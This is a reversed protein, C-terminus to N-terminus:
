PIDYVAVTTKTTFPTFFYGFWTVVSRTRLSKTVSYVGGGGAVSNVTITVEDAVLGVLAISSVRQGPTLVVTLPSPAVTGTNRLLDLMAWRNTPGIDLWNTGDDIAPPNGTNTDTRSEYRRHVQATATHTGSQSGTTVISEGDPETSLQFTD